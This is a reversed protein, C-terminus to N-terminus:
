KGHNKWVIEMYKKDLFGLLALGKSQILPTSFSTSFQKLLHIDSVTRKNQITVRRKMLYSPHNILWWYGKIKETFFGDILSYMLLALEHIALLPLLIGITKIEYLTGLLILRNREAYYLKKNNKQFHYDHLVIARASVFHQFGQQLGRWSYDQDECYMGLKSDINGVVAFYERSIFLAAGSASVIQRDKCIADKKGNEPLFGFGGVHITNGVSNVRTPQKMLLIKPQILGVKRGRKKQVKYTTILQEVMAAKATTDANMLICFDYSSSFAKKIMMAGAGAYGINKFFAHATCKPYTHLVYKVSDDTSEVDGYWIDVPYTQKFLSDFCNKLYKKQNRGIVVVVGRLKKRNNEKKGM